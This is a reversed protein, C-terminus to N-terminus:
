ALEEEEEDEDYQPEDIANALEDLAQLMAKDGANDAISIKNIEFDECFGAIRRSAVVFPIDLLLNSNKGLMDFLNQVGTASTVTVADIKGAKLDKITPNVDFEPVVRQYCEISDVNAYRKTLESSLLERGYQGRFLLINEGAVEELEPTALLGESSFNDDPVIDVQIKKATLAEATAQGVAAVILAEPFKIKLSKLAQLGYEVANVSVFIVINIQSLNKLLQKAKDTVPSAAIAITPFNIATGNHDEIMELFHGAQEEPRTVLVRYKNLEIM